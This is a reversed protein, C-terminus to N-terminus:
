AISLWEADLPERCVPKGARGYWYAANDRIAKKAISTPTCGRVRRGKTRSLLNTPGRGIARPMGGYAPSPSQSNRLRNPRPSHNVFITLPLRDAHAFAMEELQRHIEAAPDPPYAIMTM